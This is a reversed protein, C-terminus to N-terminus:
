RIWSYKRTCFRLRFGAETALHVGV